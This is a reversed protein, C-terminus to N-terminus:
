AGLEGKGVLGEGAETRVGIKVNLSPVRLRSSPPPALAGRTGFFAPPACILVAATVAAIVPVM